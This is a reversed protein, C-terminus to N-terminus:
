QDLAVQRTRNTTQRFTGLAFSLNRTAAAGQPFRSVAALGWGAQSVSTLERFVSRDSAPDGSGRNPLACVKAM